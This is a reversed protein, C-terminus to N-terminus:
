RLTLSPIQAVCRAITVRVDPHEQLFSAPCFPTIPGHIFKRVIASQYPRNMYIRVAHSQLIEKMGVTVAKRPMADVWGNAGVVSNILRTERNLDVVRTPRHKFEEPDVQEGPEPPENFAIHGLIGIGGFCIDVGGLEAIRKPVERLNRPNPFVKNRNKVRKDRDLLNYLQEDMYRRFSLPNEYPIWEKGDDTCYEDMNICVLSACTVGDQNCLRALHPYQGVPGVPLIVVTRKGTANNQRIANFMVRAFDHYADDERELIEVKIHTGKGLREPPISFISDLEKEGIRAVTSM